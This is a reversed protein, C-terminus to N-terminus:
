RGSRRAFYGLKKLGSLYKRKFILAGPVISLAYCVFFYIFYTDDAKVMNQFDSTVDAKLFLPSVLLAAFLLYATGGVFIRVVKATRGTMFLIGAYVIFGTVFVLSYAMFFLATNIWIM